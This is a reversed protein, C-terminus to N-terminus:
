FNRNGLIQPEVLMVVLIHQTLQKKIDAVAEAIRQSWLKLAVTIGQQRGGFHIMFTVKKMIYSMLVNKGFFGKSTREVNNHQIQTCPKM